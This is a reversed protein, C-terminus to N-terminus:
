SHSFVQVGPPANRISISEVEVEGVLELLICSIKDELALEIRELAQPPMPFVASMCSASILLSFYKLGEQTDPSRRIDTQDITVALFFDQLVSKILTKFHDEASLPDDLLIESLEEVYQLEVLVHYM